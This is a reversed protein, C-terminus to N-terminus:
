NKILSGAKIFRGFSVEVQPLITSGAGAFVLDAIKVDGCLVTGPCIHVHSGIRCDHDIKCGTNLISNEGIACDAQVTVGAMIQVGQGLKVTDSIWAFPHVLTEFSFGLNRMKNYIAKRNKNDLGIGNVLTIIKPDQSNLFKDNGLVKLGRWINKGKEYLIPDCVGRVPLELINLVDLLVKSHGGAGLLIIERM